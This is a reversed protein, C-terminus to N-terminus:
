DRERRDRGHKGKNHNHHNNTLPHHHHHHNQQCLWCFFCNCKQLLTLINKKFFFFFFFFFFLDVQNLDVLWEKVEKESLGFVRLCIAKSIDWLGFENRLGSSAVLICHPLKPLPSPLIQYIIGKRELHWHNAEIGFRLDFSTLSGTMSGVVLFNRHRDIMMATIVGQITRM